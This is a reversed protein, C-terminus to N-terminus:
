HHIHVDRGSEVPVSFNMREGSSPILLVQDIVETGDKNAMAM